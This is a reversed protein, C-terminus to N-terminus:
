EAASRTTYTRGQAAIRKTESERFRQSAVEDAEQSFATYASAKLAGTDVPTLKQAERQILLAGRVLGAAVDQGSKRIEQQVKGYSTRSATELFKAQGVKHPIDTREHVEFAYRQTFGVHIEVRDEAKHEQIYKRLKELM